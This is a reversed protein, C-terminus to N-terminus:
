FDTKYKRPQILYVKRFLKTQPDKQGILSLMKTLNEEQKGFFCLWRWVSSKSFEKEQNAPSETKELSQESKKDSKEHFIPGKEYSAAQEYTKASEQVYEQSKEQIQPRLYRKYPLAYSPYCTFSGQCLGCVFRGLFSKVKKVLSELIVFFIRERYSHLSFKEPNQKCKPCRKLEKPPNKKVIEKEYAEIQALYQNNM